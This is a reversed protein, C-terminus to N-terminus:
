LQHAPSILPLNNSLRSFSPPPFQCSHLEPDLRCTQVLEMSQTKLIVITLCVSSLIINIDKTPTLAPQKGATQMSSMPLPEDTKTTTSTWLTQMTRDQLISFRDPGNGRPFWSMMQSVSTIAQNFSMKFSFPLHFYKYFSCTRSRASVMMWLSATQYPASTQLTSM